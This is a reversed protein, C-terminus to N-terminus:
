GVLRGRVLVNGLKHTFIAINHCDVSVHRTRTCSEARRANWGQLFIDLSKRPSVAMNAKPPSRYISHKDSINKKFSTVQIKSVRFLPAGGLFMNKGSIDRQESRFGFKPGRPIISPPWPEM